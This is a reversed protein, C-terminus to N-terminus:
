PESFNSNFSISTEGQLYINKLILSICFLVLFSIRLSCARTSVTASIWVADHLHTHFHTIVKQPGAQRGNTGEEM